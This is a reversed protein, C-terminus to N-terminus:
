SHLHVLQLRMPFLLHCVIFTYGRYTRLTGRERGWHRRCAKHVRVGVYLFTGAQGVVLGCDPVGLDHGHKGHPLKVELYSPYSLGSSVSQLLLSPSCSTFPPWSSENARHATSIITLPSSYKAPPVSTSRCAQPPIFLPGKEGNNDQNAVTQRDPNPRGVVRRLPTHSASRTGPADQEGNENCRTRGKRMQAVTISEAAQHLRRNGVLRRIPGAEFYIVM